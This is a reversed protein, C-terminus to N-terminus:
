IARMRQSHTMAFKIKTLAPAEPASQALLMIVLGNNQRTRGFRGEDRPKRAYGPPRPIPSLMPISQEVISALEVAELM